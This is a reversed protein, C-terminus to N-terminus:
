EHVMILSKSKSLIAKEQVFDPSPSLRVQSGSLYPLLNADISSIFFWDPPQNVFAAFQSITFHERVIQDFQRSVEIFAFTSAIM